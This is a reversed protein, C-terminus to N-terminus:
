KIKNQINNSKYAVKIIKCIKKSTKSDKLQTKHYSKKKNQFKNKM